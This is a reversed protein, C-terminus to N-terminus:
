RLTKPRPPEPSENCVTAELGAVHDVLEDIGQVLLAKSPDTAIQKLTSLSAEGFGLAFVTAGSGKVLTAADIATQEPTKGPAADVTQEGDAVLLVVKTAGERGGALLQGAAEFGDSISTRGDAVMQDIGANIVVDNTSWAVRTTADTAFSVLSFRAADTGLAYQNVLQKAFAKMGSPGEMSGDPLPKKMSGSEDLVLIFDIPNACPPKPPPPPPPSPPPPSPSVCGSCQRVDQLQEYIAKAHADLQAACREELRKEM